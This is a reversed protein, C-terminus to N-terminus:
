INQSFFKIASNAFFFYNKRPMWFNDVGELHLLNNHIELVRWIIINKETTLDIMVNKLYIFSNNEYNMEKRLDRNYKKSLAFIKYKNKLIKQELIYKDDILKLFTEIILNYKQFSSQSMIKYAPDIIKFLIDYGILFQIFPSTNNYLIKSKNILKDTFLDLTDFYYKMNYKSNQVTSSSDSRRRYYYIAERIYGILPKNLLFINIFLADESFFLNEDFYEGKILSKKFFCSSASLQICYYEKTLNVIRTKNFKYDLCHFSKSSEFFKLRGAVIDINKNCKFFLLVQKFADCKWKDDPDLFNIYKGKAIDLGVNRARSVGGHEIKIYIINKPYKNKYKLCIDETQDTSEDNVLIVQIEKFSITQNILSGISDDLYRGSNYIAIIVSFLFSKEFSFLFFILLFFQFEIFKSM